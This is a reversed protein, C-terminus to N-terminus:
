APDIEAGANGRLWTDVVSGLADRLLTRARHARVRLTGPALGTIRGIESYGLGDIFHLVFAERLPQPLQILASLTRESAERHLIGSLVGQRRGERGPFADLTEPSAARAHRSRDRLYTRCMNLTIGRVWPGFPLDTRFGELGEFARALAEQALSEAEDSDGTLAIAVRILRPRHRAALEDFAGTDGALTRAILTVDPDDLPDATELTV